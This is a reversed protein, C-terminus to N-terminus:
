EENILTNITRTSRIGKFYRALVEAFIDHPAFQDFLTMCAKLRLADYSSGMFVKPNADEPYALLVETIERLRPFLVPHAIYAKVESKSSIGYRISIESEGLGHIVPFVYPMWHSLKKGKKMETLACAYGNQSADQAKVFRNLGEKRIEAYLRIRKAKRGIGLCRKIRNWIM